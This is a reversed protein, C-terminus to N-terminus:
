AQRAKQNRQNWEALPPAAQARAMLIVFAKVGSQYTLQGRMNLTRGPAQGERDFAQGLGHRKAPLQAPAARSVPDNKGCARRVLAMRSVRQVGPDFTLAPNDQALEGSGPHSDEFQWLALSRQMCCNATAMAPCSFAYAFHVFDHNAEQTSALRHLM